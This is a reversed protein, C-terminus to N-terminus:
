PGKRIEVAGHRRLLEVIRDHKYERAVTLPTRRAQGANVDAGHDILLQVIELHGTICAQYLATAGRAMRANVDVGHEILAQVFALHGYDAATMLPTFGQNDRASADAGATLLAAAVDADQHWAQWAAQNLPTTEFNNRANVDAGHGLLYKMVEVHKYEAAVHLPTFGAEGNKANVAGGRETLM